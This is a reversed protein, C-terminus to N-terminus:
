KINFTPSAVVKGGNLGMWYGTQIDEKEHAHILTWWGSGNGHKMREFWLSQDGPVDCAVYIDADDLYYGKILGGSEATFSYLNPLHYYFQAVNTTVLKNNVKSTNPFKPGLSECGVLLIALVFFVVIM